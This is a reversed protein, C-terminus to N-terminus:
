LLLACCVVRPFGSRLSLQGSAPSSASFSPWFVCSRGAATVSAQLGLGGVTAPCCPSALQSGARFGAGHLDCARHCVGGPLVGSPWIGPLLPWLWSGVRFGPVDWPCCCGQLQRCAAPGAVGGFWSVVGLGPLWCGCVGGLGPLVGWAWVCRGVVRPLGWVQRCGGLGSIVRRGWLGPRLVM